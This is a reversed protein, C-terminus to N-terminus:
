LSFGVMFYKDLSCKCSFVVLFYNLLPSLRLLSLTLYEVSLITCLKWIQRSGKKLLRSLLRCSFYDHLRQGQVLPKPFQCRNEVFKQRGASLLLELVSTDSVASTLPQNRRCLKSRVTPGVCHCQQVPSCLTSSSQSSCCLARLISRTKCPSYTYYVVKM